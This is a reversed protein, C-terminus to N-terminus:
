KGFNGIGQVDLIFVSYFAVVALVEQIKLSERKVTIERLTKQDKKM